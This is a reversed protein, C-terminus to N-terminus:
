RPGRVGHAEIWRYIQRRERGFHRALARVSGGLMEFAAWSSTARRCRRGCGACDVADDLQLEACGGCRAASRTITLPGAGILGDLTSDGTAVPTAVPLETDLWDALNGPEVLHGSPLTALVRVLGSGMRRLNFPWRQILLLEMADVSLPPGWRASRRARRGPRTCAASGTTCISAGRACRRCRSSGYRCGRM